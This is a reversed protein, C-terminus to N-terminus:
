SQEVPETAVQDIVLPAARTEARQEIRAIRRALKSRAEILYREIVLLEADSLHAFPSADKSVMLQKPILSCIVKLYTGPEEVRIREIVAAGHTSWDSGLAELVLETLRNRKGPPRGPGDPQGKVFLHKAREAM